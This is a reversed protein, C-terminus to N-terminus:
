EVSITVLFQQRVTGAQDAYALNLDTEGAGVIGFIWVLGGQASGPSSPVFTPDAQLTLVGTDYTALQWIFSDSTDDPLVLIL